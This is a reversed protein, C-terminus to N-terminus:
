LKCSTSYHKKRWARLKSTIDPSCSVYCLPGILAYLSVIAISLSRIVNLIESYVGLIFNLVIYIFFPLWCLTFVGILFIMKAMSRRRNSPVVEGNFQSVESDIRKVHQSIFYLLRSYTTIMTLLPLGIMLAGFISLTTLHQHSKESDIRWDPYNLEKTVGRILYILSTSLIWIAAITIVVFKSSIFRQHFFPHILYLYREICLLCNHINVILCSCEGLPMLIACIMDNSIEGTTDIFIAMPLVFTIAMMISAVVMSVVVLNSPTRLSKYSLIFVFLFADSVLIASGVSITFIRFVVSLADYTEVSVTVNNM